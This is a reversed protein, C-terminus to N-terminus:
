PIMGHERARRGAAPNRELLLRWLRETERNEMGGLIVAVLRGSETPLAAARLAYDMGEPLRRRMLLWGGHLVKRRLPPPAPVKRRVIRRGCGGGPGERLMGAVLAEELMSYSDEDELMVFQLVNSGEWRLTLSWEPERGGDRWWWRPVTVCTRGLAMPRLPLWRRVGQLDFLLAAGLSLAVVGRLVAAAAGTRWAAGPTGGTRSLSWAIVLGAALGTVHGLDYMGPMVLGFLINVLGLALINFAQARHIRGTWPLDRRSWSLAAAAGICAMVGASAGVVVAGPPLAAPSILGAAAGGCFFILDASAAGGLLVCWRHFLHFGLLNLGLHAYGAHVFMYTICRWWQGQRFVAPIMAAMGSRDFWWVSAAAMALTWAGSKWEWSGLLRRPVAAAEMRARIGSCVSAPSPPAGEPARLLYPDSQRPCAFAIRMLARGILRQLRGATRSMSAAIREAEELVPAAGDAAHRVAKSVARMSLREAATFARPRAPEACELAAFGAEVGSEDGELACALLLGPLSALELPGTGGAGGEATMSAVTAAAERTRGSLAMRTLMLSWGVLSMAPSEFCASCAAERQRCPGNWCEEARRDAAPADHRLLDAQELLLSIRELYDLLRAAVSANWARGGAEEELIMARLSAKESTPATGQSLKRAGQRATELVRRVFEATRRGHYRAAASYLEEALTDDLISPVVLSLVRRARRLFFVPTALLLALMFTTGAGAARVPDVVAYSLGALSCCLAVRVTNTYDRSAFLHLPIRRMGGAATAALALSTVFVSWALITSDM